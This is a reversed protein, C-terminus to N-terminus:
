RSLSPWWHSTALRESSFPMRRIPSRQSACEAYNATVGFLFVAVLPLPSVAELAASAAGRRPSGFRVACYGIVMTGYAATAYLQSRPLADVYPRASDPIGLAARGTGLWFVHLVFYVFFVVSFLILPDLLNLQTQGARISVVLVILCGLALTAPVWDPNQHRFVWASYALFIGGGSCVLATITAERRGITEPRRSESYERINVGASPSSEHLMKRGVCHPACEPTARPRTALLSMAFLPAM